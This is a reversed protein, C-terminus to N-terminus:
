RELRSSYLIYQPLVRYSILRLGVGVNLRLRHGIGEEGVGKLLTLLQTALIAIM